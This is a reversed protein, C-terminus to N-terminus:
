FFFCNLLIPHPFILSVDSTVDHIVCDPSEFNDQIYLDELLQLLPIFPHCRRNLFSWKVWYNAAILNYHQLSMNHQGVDAKVCRTAWRENHPIHTHTHTHKYYLLSHFGSGHAELFDEGRGYKIYLLLHPVLSYICSYSTWNM